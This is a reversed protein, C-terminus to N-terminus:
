QQKIGALTIVEKWKPVEEAIIKAFVEPGGGTASYGANMLKQKVEPRKVIDVLAAALKQVIPKPTGAPVLMGQWTEAVANAVGAEQLTPVDPLDPWREVGTVALPILTGAQVHGQVSSISLAGLEVTETLLSQLAPAAGSHPVHVIQIGARLKVLEAALHTATGAGASSYNLAGPKARAREILEKMSTIKTAKHVVLAIPFQALYAVPEFDRVPDYTVHQYLSPNVVFGTSALLMTYGDPKARQAATIGINGGAGGRNEVVVRQGLAEGLPDALIRATIDNAGGPAFPVIMTLPREPWNQAFAATAGALLGAALGLTKLGSVFRGWRMQAGM